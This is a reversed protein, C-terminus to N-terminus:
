DEPLGSCLDRLAAEPDDAKVVGSALLVGYAGLHIAEAVDKGNKVGAGCLALTDPSLEKIKDAANQVISPDATTVSLDGGILEPPEVAIFTPRLPALAKVEDMSDACVLSELGVNELRALVVAIDAHDIKHEAHNVLSGKAGCSKVAEATVRGTGAGPEVPDTHQAYIRVRSFGGVRGLAALEVQPPALGIQIDFEEAVKQCAKALRLVGESGTVQPYVKANIIIRPLEM